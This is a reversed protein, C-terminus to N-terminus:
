KRCGDRWSRYVQDQPRFGGKEGLARVLLNEWMRPDEGRECELGFAWSVLPKTALWFRPYYAASEWDIIASLRGHSVMINTPGMDAHYFHFDADITPPPQTSMKTLYDQLGEQSLPGLFWPHWTLHSEPPADMLWRENPVPLGTVTEYRTSTNAALAVCFRGVDDAIQERQSQSLKPWAKQLIEGEVRKMVLFSRNLEHDIWTYLVEPVPVEPAKERVFRIKEAEMELGEIWSHVKVITDQGLCWTAASVGASHIQDTESDGASLEGDEILRKRLCCIGDGDQWHALTGPPKAEPSDVKECVMLSGLLWRSPTVRAVSIGVVPDM